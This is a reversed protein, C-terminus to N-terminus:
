EAKEWKFSLTYISKLSIILSVFELFDGGEAEKNINPVTTLLHM